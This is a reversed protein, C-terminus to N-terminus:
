PAPLGLARHIAADDAAYAISAVKGDKLSILTLADDKVPWEATLKGDTVVGLRFPLERLSPLAMTRTIFAPMRSMNALYVAQRSALFGEGQRTLVAQLKSSAARSASYILLETQQPVVWRQDHQDKLEIAPLPRGVAIPQAMCWTSALMLGALAWSRVFLRM